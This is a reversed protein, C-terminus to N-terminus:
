SVPTIREKVNFLKLVLDALPTPSKRNRMFTQSTRSMHDNSKIM